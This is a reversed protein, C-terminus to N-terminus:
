PTLPQRAIAAAAFASIALDALRLARTESPSFWGLDIHEDPAANSIEGSWERAAFLALQYDIGTITGIPFLKTADIIIGLEEFAERCAATTPSENSQVHGGVVDWLNPYWARDPHRRALM